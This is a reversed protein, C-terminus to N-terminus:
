SVHFSITTSLKSLKCGPTTQVFYKKQSIIELKTILLDGKWPHCLKYAMSAVHESKVCIQIVDDTSLINHMDMYLKPHNPMTPDWM